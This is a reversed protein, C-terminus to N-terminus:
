SQFEQVKPSSFISLNSQFEQQKPSSFFSEMAQTVGSVLCYNLWMM